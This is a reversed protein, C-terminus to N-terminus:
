TASDHRCAEEATSLLRDLRDTLLCIDLVRPDSPDISAFFAAEDSALDDVCELRLLGLIAHLEGLCARRSLVGNRVDACLQVVRRAWRPGGLLRAAEELGDRHKALFLRIDFITIDDTNTDTNPTNFDDLM